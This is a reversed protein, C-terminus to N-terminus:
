PERRATVGFTLEGTVYQDFLWYCLAAWSLKDKLRQKNIKALFDASVRAPVQPDRKTKKM